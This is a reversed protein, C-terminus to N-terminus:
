KVKWPQFITESRVRGGHLWLMESIMLHATFRVFDESRSLYAEWGGSRLDGRWAYYRRLHWVLRPDAGDFFRTYSMVPQITMEPVPGVFVNPLDGDAATGNPEFRPTDRPAQPDVTSPAVLPNSSPGDNAFAGRDRSPWFSPGRDVAAVPQSRTMPLTPLPASVFPSAQALMPGADASQARIVPAKGPSHKPGTSRSLKPMSLLPDQRPEPPPPIPTGGPFLWTRPSYWQVNMGLQPPYYPTYDTVAGIVVADVGLAQCLRVADAPSNMDLRNENIAQEVVGLPVVQFGPKKQLEEFYAIAFRRGDVTPEASLNFFPAVAVTTM